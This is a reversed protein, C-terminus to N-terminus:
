YPPVAWMAIGAGALLGFAFVAAGIIVRSVSWEDNPRRKAMRALIVRSAGGGRHAASVHGSKKV